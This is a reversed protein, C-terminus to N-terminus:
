KLTNFILGFMSKKAEPDLPIVNIVYVTSSGVGSNVGDYLLNGM